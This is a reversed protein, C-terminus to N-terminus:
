DRVSFEVQWTQFNDVAIAELALTGIDTIKTSLEVMVVEGASRGEQAELTVEIPPLEELENPEWYDLHTGTEDDRRTTSGYFQFNVPQGIILGFERNSLSSETGEEMGFPAICVAEMQPPIGPIAPMSSEVGVYYSSALGGRIRVGGKNNALSHNVYGFYSAGRAVALDLDLGSLRSVSQQEFWSQMVDMLRNSLLESKLVGGNFLIKSPQIFESNEDRLKAQRTLFAAIHRTIGADQAYPLGAQTLASRQASIPQDHVSVQPFFGDLLTQQIDQQTLTTKLSSGILKSGRSPIVIPVAEVDPNQLLTEKADRCLHALANVQWPQLQQGQTAMNMKIRYALALDMNDGGLLIHEGVAVRELALNGDEESVSVLSLDTTGGGIDVVLVLDGIEVQNRWEDKANDIWSYLAAQPEELLTLNEFGVQKAAEATLEKAAPDFSAPITITVHQKALPADPNHHDWASMLHDLYLETAEVPSVRTIDDGQGQPLFAERRNVGGHCLWSKASAILRMPTKHGLHRAIAGVLAPPENTWPLRISSPEVEVEHAQYIFSPLQPLSEVQGAAILQPISFVEVQASEDDLRSYSLVSNTTGLDIGVSYIAAQENQNSFQM